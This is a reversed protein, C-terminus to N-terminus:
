TSNEGEGGGTATADNRETYRMQREEARRRKKVGPKTGLHYYDCHPCRYAMMDGRGSMSRVRRLHLKARAKTAFKFKGLCQREPADIYGNM